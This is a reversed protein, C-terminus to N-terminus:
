GGRLAPASGPVVDVAGGGQSREEPGITKPRPTMLDRVLTRAFLEEREESTRTEATAELVDTTSLVGILKGHKDVVPPSMRRTVHVFHYEADSLFALERAATAARLGETSPDVGAIIRKWSGTNGRQEPCNFRLPGPM